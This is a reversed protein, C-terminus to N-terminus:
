SKGGQIREPMLFEQAEMADLFSTVFVSKKEGEDELEETWFLSKADEEELCAPDFDNKKYVSKIMEWRRDSEEKGLFLGERLVHTQSNPLRKRSSGEETAKLTLVRKEFRQWTRRKGWESGSANAWQKDPTVIYPGGYLKHTVEGDSKIDLRDRISSLSDLSSDYLVHFDFASCTWSEGNIGRKLHKKTSKASSCLAEALEYASYFPFHPKIIAIGACATLYDLKHKKSAITSVDKEAKTAREFEELFVRTFQIAYKGDCIVTIDDGGLILPVCDVYNDQDSFFMGVAALFANTACKDLGTSFARLSRIFERNQSALTAGILQDFTSFISGVGNGDAHIVALWDSKIKDLDRRFKKNSHKTKLLGDLRDYAAEHQGRKAESEASTPIPDGTSHERMMRKAPLGSTKCEAIIPLRLFRMSPGPILARAQSLRVFAKRIVEGLPETNWDFGVVVGCINLGPAKMLANLTVDRVIKKGTEEDKTMALAIGSSVYLVEVSKSSTELPEQNSINQRLTGPDDNWLAVRGNKEAAELFWQTGARYTLESAGVNEQLKNTAFIYSQNGSTEVLVLFTDNM